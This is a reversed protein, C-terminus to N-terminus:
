VLGGMPHWGTAALAIPLTHRILTGVLMGRLFAKDSVATYIEGLQGQSPSLSPPKQRGGEQGVAFLLNGVAQSTFSPLAPDMM